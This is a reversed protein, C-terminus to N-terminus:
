KYGKNGKEYLCPIKLFVGAIAWGFTGCRTYTKGNEETKM